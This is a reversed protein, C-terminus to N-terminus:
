PNSSSPSLGSIKFCIVATPNTCGVGIWAFGFPIALLAQANQDIQARLRRADVHAQRVAVLYVGVAGVVLGILLAAIVMLAYFALGTM